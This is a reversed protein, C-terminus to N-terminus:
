DNSLGPGLSWTMTKARPAISQAEWQSTHFEHAVGIAAVLLALFPLLWPLMAPLRPPRAGARGPPRISRLPPAPSPRPAPARPKAPQQRPSSTREAPYADGVYAANAVETDLYREM